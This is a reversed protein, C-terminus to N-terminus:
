VRPVSLKWIIHPDNAWSLMSLYPCFISWAMHLLASTSRWGGLVQLHGFSTFINTRHALLMFWAASARTFVCEGYAMANENPACRQWGALFSSPAVRVGIRATSEDAAAGLAAAQEYGESMAEIEAGAAARLADLEYRTTSLSAALTEAARSMPVAADFTEGCPFTPLM